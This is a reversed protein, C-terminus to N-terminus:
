KGKRLQVPVSEGHQGPHLNGVDPLSLLGQLSGELALCAPWSTAKDVLPAPHLGGLKPPEPSEM